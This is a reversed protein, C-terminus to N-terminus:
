LTDEMDDEPDIKLGCPEAFDCFNCSDHSIKPVWVEMEQAHAIENCVRYLRMFDDDDRQGCDWRRKGKLDFWVPRRKVDAFEKWLEPGDPMPPFDPGNGIWFEPQMSAYAYVTFQVDSRLMYKPPRYGTKLDVVELRRGEKSNTWELLDVYGMLEHKGFPVLFKHESAILKSPSWASRTAYWDLLELGDAQAKPYTFGTEWYDIPSGYNEPAEWFEIFKAKARALDLTRHFTDLADHIASGYAAKAGSESPLHLDYHFHAQLPCSM